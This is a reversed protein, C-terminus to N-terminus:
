NQQMERKKNKSCKGKFIERFKSFQKIGLQMPERVRWMM